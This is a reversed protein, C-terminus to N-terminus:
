RGSMGKKRRRRKRKKRGRKRNIKRRKAGKGVEGRDRRM